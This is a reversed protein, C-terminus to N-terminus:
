AYNVEITLHNLKGFKSLSQKFTEANTDSTTCIAIAASYHDASIRWIHIDTVKTQENELANIIDAQYHKDISEDLLIPSTQKMLGLAWKTIVIAGVIGMIPDLWYWGLYKGVLLACIALVSTLADALVHFYAAKLNHDSHGHHSHEHLSHDHAHGDDEHHHAHEDHSHLHHAHGHDDDHHHAHDHHHHDHDHHDHGHHHHEHGLIFMSAVNVVLGIVAVMISQNFQIDVPSLLRHVSEVLMILAVIGLGIASTYGGLVGVKGVGFSFRDSNAHKRAYHYTFLTICFAAAHTGMHWGDALLAMSGYITGAIVEIVMTIITIVLVYWTRRENQANVSTFNHQHTYKNAFALNTM